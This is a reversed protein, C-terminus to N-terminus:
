LEDETYAEARNIIGVFEIGSLGQQPSSQQMIQLYALERVAYRPHAGILRMTLGGEIDLIRCLIQAVTGREASAHAPASFGQDLYGHGKLWTIRQPYTENPDTRNAMEILGHAMENNSLVRRESLGHWFDLEGTIDDEAYNTELHSQSKTRECGTIAAAASLLCVLCLPYRM